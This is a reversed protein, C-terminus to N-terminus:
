TPSYHVLGIRLLLECVKCINRGPSTPEGCVRCIGLRISTKGVEDIFLDDFTELIRMLIGPREEELLYLIERIRARLSPMLDLYPCEVIQPKYGKIKAYIATEYEYIKRLPKIKHIFLDSPNRRLPHITALRILDGRLINIIITQAEDDLNHATAVKDYGYLRAVHNIGRRRYLGCFTCPSIKLNREFSKKVIEDLSYGSLEKISTIHLDISRERAYIRLREIDEARNYGEIGEIVTVGGLKSPDHIQSMIDLLVFSDKGGSLALLIRDNSNFMNYRKIERSVRGMVDNIFCVPCLKKGSHRQYITAERVGCIDCISM